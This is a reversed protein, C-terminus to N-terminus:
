KREEDRRPKRSRWRKHGLYLLALAIAVALIILLAIGGGSSGTGATGHGAFAPSILM